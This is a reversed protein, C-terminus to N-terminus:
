PGGLLPAALARVRDASRVGDRALAVLPAVAAGPTGAAFAPEYTAAVFDDVDGDGDAPERLVAVDDASADVDADGRLVALRVHSATAEDDADDFEVAQRGGAVDAVAVLGFPVEGALRLGLAAMPLAWQVVGRRPVLLTTTAATRAPGGEDAPWGAAALVWLAAVFRPDLAADSAVLSGMCKGCSPPIDVAVSVAGCDTCRAVPVPQGARGHHSICWWGGTGAADLFHERAGPPAFTTRERVADAAAAELEVTDLFWHRGLRPFVVTGCRRCRSVLEVADRRGVIAGEAALFDTMAARAAYRALGEVPAVRVTAEHDLVDIPTMGLRRATDLALPDHAPVVLEPRELDVEVVVPVIRGIVPLEVELGAARHGDPVAVAVAGPLLEVAVVAVDVHPEGDLEGAPVMPLRVTLEVAEVDAIDTDTGEVVTACRSCVDVVRELEQVFGADFLRVFATRAAVQPEDRDTAGADLDADVFFRALRGALAVRATAEHTRVREAYEDRTLAARSEGARALDRDVAVQAALDGCLSPPTWTVARGEATARRVLADAAVCMALQSRTLSGALELPATVIRSADVM